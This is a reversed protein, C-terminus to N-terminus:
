VTSALSDCRKDPYGVVTVPGGEKLVMWMDVHGLCGVGGLAVGLGVVSRALFDGLGRFGSAM